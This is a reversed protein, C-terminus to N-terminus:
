ADGSPMSTADYMAAREWEQGLNIRFRHYRSDLMFAHFGNEERPVEDSWEIEEPSALDEGIAAAQLTVGKGKVHSRVGSCLARSGPQLELDGTELLGPLPVGSLEALQFSSDFGGVRRSAVGSQRDDFSLAGYDIGELTDELVDRDGLIDPSDLSAPVQGAGLMSYVTENGYSFRDLMWDWVIVRNPVGGAHGAGAYSVWIKTDLPDRVVSVSDPFDADYDAFFWDNVRDKGINTSKTYDCLRFGDEAIFFIGREFKAAADKIYLGSEADIRNFQWVVDSGVFDARQIANEQFIIVVETGSVIGNVPGGGAEFEVRGSSVATAADTGPIPWDGAGGIPGWGVANRLVGADRTFLDGLWLFGEAVTAHAARPVNPGLDEFLTSQALNFGQTPNVYSAAIITTGFQTFSVRRQGLSAYGAAESVDVWASETHRYLQMAGSGADSIAAFFFNSGDDRRGRISGRPASPLAFSDIASLSQMPKYGAAIPLVNQAKLLSDGNVLSFLDPAWQGFPKRM